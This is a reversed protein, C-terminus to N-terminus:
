QPNEMLYTRLTLGKPTLFAGDISRATIGMDMLGHGTGSLIWWEDGEDQYARLLAIRQGPLLGKAIRAIEEPTTM